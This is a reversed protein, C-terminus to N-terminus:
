QRQITDIKFFSLIKKMIKEFSEVSITKKGDIINKLTRFNINLKKATKRFGYKRVSKNIELLMLEWDNSKKRTLKEIAMVIENVIPFFNKGLEKKIDRTTRETCLYKEMLDIVYAGFIAQYKAWDRNAQIILEWNPDQKGGDVFIKDYNLGCSLSKQKQFSNIIKKAIKIEQRVLLNKNILYDILKEEYNLNHNEM